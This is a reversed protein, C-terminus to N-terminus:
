LAAKILFPHWSIELPPLTRIAMLLLMMSSVWPIFKRESLGQNKHTALRMAQSLLSQATIIILEPNNSTNRADLNLNELGSIAPISEPSFQVLLDGAEALVPSEISQVEFFNRIRWQQMGTRKPILGSERILYRGAPASNPSFPFALIAHSLFGTGNIDASSFNVQINYNSATALDTRFTNERGKIGFQANPISSISVNGVLANNHFFEMRGESLSQGMVRVTLQPNGAAGQIPPFNFSQRERNFIPRSFWNRGSTLLNTEEWKIYQIAFIRQLDPGSITMQTDPIDLKKEAQGIVYYLTDSYHHVQLNFDGENVLVQHPGTLFFFLENGIRKTPIQRFFLDISDLKQPLMGPFGYIGVEDLNSFGFSQAQQATIKYVGDGLIPFKFFAQSQQALTWSQKGSFIYFFCIFVTYFRISKLM